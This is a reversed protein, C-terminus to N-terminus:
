LTVYAPNYTRVVLRDVDDILPTHCSAMSGDRMFLTVINGSRLNRKLQDSPLRFVIDTNYVDAPDLDVRMDDGVEIAEKTAEASVLQDPADIRYSSGDEVVGCLEVRWAQKYEEVTHVRHGNIAVVIDGVGITNSESYPSEPLMSTIVLASQYRNTPTDMLQNFNTRYYRSLHPTAAMVFIGARCAFNVAEMDPYMERYVSMDTQLVIRVDEVIRTKGDERRYVDLVLVNGPTERDLVALFPLKGRQEDAPGNRWYDVEVRMQQDISVFEDNAGKLRCIIDSACLVGQANEIRQGNVCLTPAVVMDQTVVGKADIQLASADCTASSLNRSIHQRLLVRRRRAFLARLGRPPGLHHLRREQM